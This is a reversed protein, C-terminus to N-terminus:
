KLLLMKKTEVFGKTTIRYFYTGSSVSRSSNDRGKWIVEHRGVPYEEDVLTSVLRGQLDFISLKVRGSTPMTFKITTSPNFPNPYNDSLSYRAPVSKSAAMVIPMPGGITWEEFLTFTGTTSRYVKYTTMDGDVLVYIITSGDGGSGPGQIQGADVQHMNGLLPYESAVDHHYYHDHGVFLTETGNNDLMTVFADRNAPNADLSDGIHRVEPYAPEHVFVFKHPQSSAALDTDVWTRLAV